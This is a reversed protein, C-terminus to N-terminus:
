PHSSDQLAPTGGADAKRRASSWRWQEACQVLGAKVPNNEIYAVAAVLHGEDRIYRDFYDPMWFSGSRGLCHNAQKATFSKWSHVIKDLPYGTITAVLVHVHNPMVCWALLRYRVSDFHLMAAEVLQAIETRKLWCQGHGADEYREIRQRLEVARPNDIRMDIQWGLEKKWAAILENPLADYLRFTINQVRGPQDCHPLYGRSHWQKHPFRKAISSTTKAPTTSSSM